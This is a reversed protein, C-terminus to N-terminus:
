GWGTLGNDAIIRVITTDLSDVSTRAMRYPGGAVALDRQYVEIRSIRM